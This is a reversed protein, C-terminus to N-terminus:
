GLGLGGLKPEILPRTITRYGVDREVHPRATAILLNITPSSAMGAPYTQPKRSRRVMPAYLCLPKPLDPDKLAEWHLRHFEPSGVIEFHLQELGQRTAAKYEAFADRDAFVQRFLTEGYAKISGGAERAMVQDTFPFRLHEEFYWELRAEEEPSFPDTITVPYEGSEDVSVVANFASQAREEIRTSVM